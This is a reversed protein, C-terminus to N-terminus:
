SKNGKWVALSELRAKIPMSYHRAALPRQLLPAIAAPLNRAKLAEVSQTFAAADRISSHRASYARSSVGAESVVKAIMDESRLMRESNQASLRHSISGDHKRYHYLPKHLYGYRAGGLLLRVVLEDDEGIRLDERYRFGGDRLRDLRIMPKLFGLNPQSGFMRTGAFYRDLSILGDDGAPPDTLYSQPTLDDGFLQLNDAIMDAGLREAEAMLFASREPALLDDSDLMAYWTGRANEIGVNRAGGPGKNESTQFVRIRADREAMERASALSGDASHDDIILVEVSVDSQALASAVTAELFRMANYCAIVISVDPRNAAPTTDPM